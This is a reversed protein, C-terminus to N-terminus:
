KFFLFFFTYNGSTKKRPERPAVALMKVQRAEKKAKEEAM